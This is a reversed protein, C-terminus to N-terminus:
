EEPEEDEDLEEDEDPPQEVEVSSARLVGDFKALDAADGVKLDGAGHQWNVVEVTWGEPAQGSAAAERLAAEVEERDTVGDPKGNSLWVEILVTHQKSEYRITCL